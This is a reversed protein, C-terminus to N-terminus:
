WNYTKELKKCCQSLIRLKKTESYFWNMYTKNTEFSIAICVFFQVRFNEFKMRLKKCCICFLKIKFQNM